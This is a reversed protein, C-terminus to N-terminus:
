PTVSTTISMHDFRAVELTRYAPSDALKAVGAGGVPGPADAGGIIKAAVFTHIEDLEDIAAFSAILRGGGEVLVNTMQRRGLEELLEGVQERSDHSPCRLVEVGRQEVGALRELDGDPGAVFMVPGAALSRLLNSDLAPVRQGVFVVRLATRPGSPRATLTPNDAAATGGGVIVADMRGRLRHVEGRSLEGSIWQSDGTVTAIKGDLTMAWKGIVWPRHRQLRKLYPANLEEAAAQEIGVEVDVGSRRLRELGGGDVQPFPDRMAVVVRGVGASLLADTCPPTKGHHCCPELTVYATAGNALRPDSVRKLADVEAHDGGFRRHFGEGICVGDRVIVCGVLPNPEVQGLGRQALGLAQNM